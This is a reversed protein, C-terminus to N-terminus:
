IIKHITQGNPELVAIGECSASLVKIPRFQAKLGFHLHTVTSYCSAQHKVFVEKLDKLFDEEKKTLRIM